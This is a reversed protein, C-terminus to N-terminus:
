SQSSDIDIKPHSDRNDKAKVGSEFSTKSGVKVIMDSLGTLEPKQTDKVM